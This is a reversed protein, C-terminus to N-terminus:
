RNEYKMRYLREREANREEREESKYKERTTWENLLMDKGADTLYHEEFIFSFAIKEEGSYQKLIIFQVVPNDYIDYNLQVREPRTMWCYESDPTDFFQLREQDTYIEKFKQYCRKRIEEIAEFVATEFEKVYLRRYHNNEVFRRYDYLNYTGM